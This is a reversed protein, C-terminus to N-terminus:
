VSLRFLKTLETGKHRVVGVWLKCKEVRLRQILMGSGSM